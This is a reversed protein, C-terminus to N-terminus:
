IKNNSQHDNDLEDENKSYSNQNKELVEENKKM